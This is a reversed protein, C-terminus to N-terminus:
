SNVWDLAGEYWECYLGVLLLLVFIAVGWIASLSMGVSSLSLMPFLLAAEVDFILFLVTLLFFRSSFPSRMMSLPDFGCEFPGLKESDSLGTSHRTLTYLLYVGLPLLTSVM